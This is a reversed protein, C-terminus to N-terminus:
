KAAPMCVHHRQANLSTNQPSPCVGEGGAGVGGFEMASTLVAPHTAHPLEDDHECAGAYRAFCMAVQGSTGYWASGPILMGDALPGEAGSGPSTLWGISPPWRRPSRMGLLPSVLTAEGPFQHEIELAPM